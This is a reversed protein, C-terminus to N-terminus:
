RVSMGVSLGVIQKSPLGSTAGLRHFRIDFGVALHDRLFWRAGGGFNVAHTRRARSVTESAADSAAPTSTVEARTQATGFGASLYSWGDHTGFNFSLQPAVTTVTMSAEVAGPSGVITTTSGSATSTTAPSRATGRARMLDIGLGVRSLGLRFPYVHAGAGFGFGRQPALTNEPVPPYFSAGGPTGSMSGRVDIVYPGPPSQAFAATSMLLAAICLGTKM